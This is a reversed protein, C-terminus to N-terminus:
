LFAPIHAVSNGGEKREPSLLPLFHQRHEKFSQQFRKPEPREALVIGCLAEYWTRLVRSFLYIACALSVELIKWNPYGELSNRKPYTHLHEKQLRPTSLVTGPSQTEAQSARCIIAVNFSFFVSEKITTAEPKPQHRSGHISIRGQAERGGM